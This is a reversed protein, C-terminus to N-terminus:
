LGFIPLLTALVALIAMEAAQEAAGYVDGTVGGFRRLAIFAVGLVALGGFLLALLAIKLPLVYLFVALGDEHMAGTLVIGVGLAVLVMLLGPLHIFEALWVVGAVAGGILAGIIPFSWVSSGLRALIRIPVPIRTLFILAAFFQRLVRM